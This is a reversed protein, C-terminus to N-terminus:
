IVDSICDKILFYSALDSESCESSFSLIRYISLFASIGNVLSFPTYLTLHEILLKGKYKMKSVPADTTEIDDTSAVNM